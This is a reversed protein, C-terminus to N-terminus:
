RILRKELNEFLSGDSMEYSYTEILRTGYEAHLKRKWEMGEKYEKTADQFSQGKETDAFFHPVEGKQNIVLTNWISIGLNM